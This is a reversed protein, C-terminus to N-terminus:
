WVNCLIFFCNDVNYDVGCVNKILLYFHKSVESETNGINDQTTSSGKVNKMFSDMLAFWKINPVYVDNIGAGSKKSKKIKGVEQNYTCRLNKIKQKLEAIGFNEKAMYKVIEEYAASRMARNRYNPSSINWICEYDKYVAVLKMTEHETWKM